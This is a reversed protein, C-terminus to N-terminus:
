EKKDNWLEKSIGFRRKANQIEETMEGRKKDNIFEELCLRWFSLLFKYEENERTM